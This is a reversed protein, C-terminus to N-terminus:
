PNKVFFTNEITKKWTIFMTSQSCINKVGIEAEIINTTKIDLTVAAMTNNTFSIDIECSSDVFVQEIGLDQVGHM